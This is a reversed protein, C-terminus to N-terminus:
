QGVHEAVVVQREGVVLIELEPHYPSELLVLAPRNVSASM